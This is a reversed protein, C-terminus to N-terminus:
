DADGPALPDSYNMTSVGLGKGEDQRDSRRKARDIARNINGGGTYDADSVGQTIGYNVDKAKKNGFLKVLINNKEKQKKEFDYIDDTKTKLGTPGFYMEEFEDLADLRDQLNGSYGPKSMAKNITDRRKQITEPTLQSLNYGAMVNAGTDYAGSGQVIRGIDDTFVGMGRAENEMISRKNVPLFNGIFSGIGRGPMLNGAFSVLKQIGTPEPPTYYNPGMYQYNPDAEMMKMNMTSSLNPDYGDVFQRYDYNPRYNTRVRNPDPNYVNFGDGGGGGVFANTNVIGQNIVPEQSAAPIQFPNLLYRQQPIYKFGQDRIEQDTAM